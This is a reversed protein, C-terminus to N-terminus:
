GLAKVEDLTLGLALLKSEASAKAAEKASMLNDQAEKLAAMEARVALFDALEAGTLKRRKDDEGVWIEETAM